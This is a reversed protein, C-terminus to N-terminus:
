NIREFLIQNEYSDEYISLNDILEINAPKFPILESWYNGEGLSLSNGQVIGTESDFSGATIIYQDDNTSIATEDIILSVNPAGGEQSPPHNTNTATAVWLKYNYYVTDLRQYTTTEDWDYMLNLGLDPNGKQGKLNLSVWYDINTPLIGSSPNPNIYLYDINNYIVFNYIQYTTFSNWENRNNYNDIIEQFDSLSDSLFEDINNDVNNQLEILIAIINNFVNSLFAKLNLQPNNDIINLAASYNGNFFNTIFSERLASDNISIDQVRNM